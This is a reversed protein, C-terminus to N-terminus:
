AAESEVPLLRELREDFSEARNPNLTRRNVLEDLRHFAVLTEDPYNREVWQAGVLDVAFAFEEDSLKSHAIAVARDHWGRHCDFCLPLGNRRWNSRAARSRSRPVIHHLHAAKAGCNRCCSEGKLGLSWESPTLGTSKRRRQRFKNACTQSCWRHNPRRKNFSRGCACVVAAKPGYRATDRCRLSCYKAAVGRRRRKFGTGCHACVLEVLNNAEFCRKTCFRQNGTTPSFEVRCGACTKPRYGKPATLKSDHRLRTTRALRHAKKERKVPKEVPVVGRKAQASLAEGGRHLHPSLGSM